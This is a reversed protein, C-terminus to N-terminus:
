KGKMRGFVPTFGLAIESIQNTKVVQPIASLINVVSEGLEYENTNSEDESLKKMQFRLREKEREQYKELKKDIKIKKNTDRQIEQKELNEKSNNINIFQSHEGKSDLNHCINVVTPNGLQRKMLTAETCAKLSVNEARLEVKGEAQILLKDKSYFNSGETDQMLICSEEEGMSLGIISPYFFLQKQEKTLFYRFDPKKIEGHKINKECTCHIGFAEREDEKPIKLYVRGGIEPMCYLLNGYEPLWFYSYANDLNQNKDIDLHIKITEGNRELVTGPLSLKELQLNYYSSFSDYEKKVLKYECQLLGDKLIMNVEYIWWFENKYEVKQGLHVIQNTVIRYFVADYSKWSLNRIIEADMCWIDREAILKVIDFNERLGCYLGKGEYDIAPILPAHLHSLIRKLFEWDTEKYQIFPRLEDRDCVNYFSEFENERFIKECIKVITQKGMQFSRNKKELGLLWSLSYAGIKIIDYDAGKKINVNKVVGSFLLVKRKNKMFYILIPESSLSHELLNWRRSEAHIVIEAYAHCNMYEHILLDKIELLKFNSEIKIEGVKVYDM